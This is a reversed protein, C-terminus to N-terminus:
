VTVGEREVTRILAFGRHRELFDHDAVFVSVLVGHELTLDCAIRRAAERIDGGRDHGELAIFLDLDSEADADGRARSGLLAVRFLGADHEDALRKAFPRPLKLDGATVSGAASMSEGRCGDRPESTSM